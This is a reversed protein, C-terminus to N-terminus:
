RITTHVSFYIAKTNLEYKPTALEIGHLSNLTINIHQFKWQKDIDLVSHPRLIFHFSFVERQYHPLVSNLFFFITNELSRFTFYLHFISTYIFSNKFCVTRLYNKSNPWRHITMGSWYTQAQQPDIQYNLEHTNEQEGDM